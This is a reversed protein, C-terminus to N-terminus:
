KDLTINFAKVMGLQVQRISDIKETLKDLKSNIDSIDNKYQDGLVQLKAVDIKVDGINSATANISGFYSTIVLVVTIVISGVM